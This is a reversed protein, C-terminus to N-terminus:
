LLAPLLSDLWAALEPTPRARGDVPSVLSVSVAGADVAAVDTDPEPEYPTELDSPRGYPRFSPREGPELPALFGRRYTRRAPRTLRWGTAPAAVPFNVCLAYGEPAPSAHVAVLLRAADEVFPFAANRRGGDLRHGGGLVEQSLAVGPVGLLVAELAAGLTGSYTSDDGLNSGHNIGSAVLCVPPLLESLLAIRVCDVPNGDCALVRGDPGSGADAVTVPRYLTLARAIGSRNGDPALVSVDAGLALLARRLEVLGEADVGDDNTLLVHVRRVTAAFSRGALPYM